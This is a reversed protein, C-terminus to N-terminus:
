MLDAPHDGIRAGIVEAAQLRWVGVDCPVSEFIQGDVQLTGIEVEREGEHLPDEDGVAGVDHELIEGHIIIGERECLHPNNGHIRHSLLNLEGDVAVPLVRADEIGHKWHYWVGVTGAYLHVDKSIAPRDGAHRAHVGGIGHSRPLEGDSGVRSH